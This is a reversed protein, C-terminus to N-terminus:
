SAKDKEEEWNLYDMYRSFYSKKTTKNKKKTSKRTKIEMYANGQSSLKVIPEKNPHYVEKIWMFWAIVASYANLVVEEPTKFGLRKTRRQRNWRENYSQSALVLSCENIARVQSFFERDDQKHSNEVKGNLEKEGLPILKHIIDNKKCWQDLAHEGTPLGRKSTYKDTFAADNDTQIDIVPFPVKLLMESLFHLTYDTSKEPYIKIYRWSTLHDICSLQYYQKDGVKYPVYKFDMQMHGPLEHKIKGLHKKTLRKAIVKGIFNNRRLINNITSVACSEKYLRKLDDQIREAGLFPQVRRIKCIKKEIRPRTKNPSKAPRRSLSELAALNKKKKLRKAWKYFWERSVGESRCIKALKKPSNCIRKLKYLRKKVEADKNKQAELSISSLIKRLQYKMFSM